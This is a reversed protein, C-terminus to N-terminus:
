ESTISGSDEEAKKALERKEDLESRSAERERSDEEPEREEIEMDKETEVKELDQAAKKEAWRRVDGYTSSVHMWIEQEPSTEPKLAGKVKRKLSAFLRAKFKHPIDLRLAIWKGPPKNDTPVEPLIPVTLIGEDKMTREIIAARKKMVLKLFELTAGINLDLARKPNATQKLMTTCLHPYLISFDSQSIHVTGRVTFLWSPCGHEKAENTLSTVTDFNQQWYMFAESNIGLLPTQISNRVDGELPRVAAGWIDYIIGQSIFPFRKAHRLVEVVTAGGFSHGLITVQDLYFRDRWENWNVGNLGRSSSGVFGKRRLNKAAVEAGRGECIDKLVRYAAEIEALRLELQASRLELDVGDTNQPMTDHPNDKPWVYDVRDYNKRKEEWGHDICSHKDLEEISGQGTKAHNVFTRPGSGDRHEIACVVFGYSAFEGCVSSYVTRTGGLGHSFILLPFRPSTREGVPPPGQRDKHKYGESSSNDASPWHKAPHANRFAPIKTFMTTLAFFPLLLPEPLGAFKSYGEATQIRPRPLWTERSWTRCGAPDRGAGTGFDAPYYIAVLCTELKILHQHHRKIHSFSRPNDVPVEIDM